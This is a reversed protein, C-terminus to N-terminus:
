LSGRAVTTAQARWSFSLTRMPRSGDQSMRMTLLTILLLCAWSCTSWAPWTLIPNPNAYQQTHLSDQRCGGEWSSGAQPIRKSVGNYPRQLHKDCAQPAFRDTHVVASHSFRVWEVATVLNLHSPGMGESKHSV